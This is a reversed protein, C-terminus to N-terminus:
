LGPTLPWWHLVVLGTCFWVLAFSLVTCFWVQAFGFWHLVLGTCFWVLLFCVLAFGLVTYVLGTYFDVCHLVLGTFFEVCHSVWCLAFGLWPLVLGTCIWCLACHLFCSCFLARRNRLPEIAFLSSNIPFRVFPTTWFNSWPDIVSYTVNLHSSSNPPDWPISPRRWPTDEETQMDNLQLFLLPYLTLLCLSIWNNQMHQVLILNALLLRTAPLKTSNQTM